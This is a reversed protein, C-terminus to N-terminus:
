VYDDMNLMFKYAPVIQIEINETNILEEYDNTIILGNDANVYKCANILGKIERERTVATDM